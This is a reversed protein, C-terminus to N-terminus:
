KNGEQKRGSSKNGSSSPKVQTAPKTGQQKISTQAKPKQQSTKKFAM